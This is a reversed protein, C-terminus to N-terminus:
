CSARMCALQSLTMTKCRLHVVKRRMHIPLEDLISQQDFVTNREYLFKYFATLELRVSKPLDMAHCFEELESMKKKFVEKSVQMASINSIIVGAMASFGLAIILDAFILFWRELNTEVMQERTMMARWSELYVTLPDPRDKPNEWGARVAWGRNLGNSRMCDRRTTSSWEPHLRSAFASDDGCTTEEEEICGVLYWFCALTHMVWLMTTTMGVAICVPRIGDEYRKVITVMRAAKVLRLLKVFRLTKVLLTPEFSDGVDESLFYSLVPLVAVFDFLFWSKLYITALTKGDSIVQGVEDLKTTRFQMLLDAVFCLDIILDVADLMCLGNCADLQLGVRFTVSFAVWVLMVMLMADWITTFKSDQDRICPARSAMVLGQEPRPRRAASDDLDRGGFMDESKLSDVFNDLNGVLDPFNERSVVWDGQQTPEGYEAMLDEVEGFTAQVELSRVAHGLETISITNDGDLDCLDFIFQMYEEDGSSEVIQAVKRKVATDATDARTRKEADRVTRGAHQWSGRREGGRRRANHNATELLVKHRVSRQSPLM